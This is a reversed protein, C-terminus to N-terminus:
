SLRWWRRPGQTSEPQAQQRTLLKRLDELHLAREDALREAAELKAQLLRIEAHLDPSVSMGSNTLDSALAPAPKDRREYVRQLESMDIQWFENKDKTVKEGTIKGQQLHKLITPRSVAFLKSAELMSIKTM